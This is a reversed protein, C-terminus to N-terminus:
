LFCNNVSQAPREGLSLGPLQLDKQHERLRVLMLAGQRCVLFWQRTGHETVAQKVGGSRVRFNLAYCMVSARTSM